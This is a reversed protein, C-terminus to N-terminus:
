TAPQSSVPRADSSAVEASARTLPLSLRAIVWGSAETFTLAGHEQYLLRLRERLNNIGTGGPPNFGSSGAKWRGTNAVELELRDGQRWARFRLHHADAPQSMGHKIANEVLPQLILEPVECPGLEAPLELAVHLQQEFRVKEVELYATLHEVEEALPVTLASPARLAGRLFKALRYLFPTARAPERQVLAIASNLANFLFHPNVQYRLALLRAEALSRELQSSRVAEQAFAHARQASAVFFLSPITVGYLVPGLAPPLWAPIVATLELVIGVVIFLNALWAALLLRTGGGPQVRDLWWAVTTCSAMVAIAMLSVLVFDVRYSVLPIVAFEIAVAVRMARLIRPPTRDKFPPLIFELTFQVVLFDMAAILLMTPQMALASAWPLGLRAWFGGILLFYACLLLSLLANIAQLRNRLILGMVTSLVSLSGFTGVEALALWDSKAADNAAAEPSGYVLVPVLVSSRTEIRALM